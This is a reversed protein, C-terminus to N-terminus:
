RPAGHVHGEWDSFPFFTGARCGGRAIASGAVFRMLTCIADARVPRVRVGPRRKFGVEDAPICCVPPAHPLFSSVFLLRHDPQLNPGRRYGDSLDQSRWSLHNRKRVSPEVLHGCRPCSNLARCARAPAESVGRSIRALGSPTAESEFQPALWEPRSTAHWRECAVGLGSTRRLSSRGAECYAPQRAGPPRRRAERM